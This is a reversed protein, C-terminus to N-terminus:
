LVSVATNPPCSERSDGDKQQTGLSPMASGELLTSFILQRNAHTSRTHQSPFSHFNTRRSQANRVLHRTTSPPPSNVGSKARSRARVQKISILDTICVIETASRCNEAEFSGVLSAIIEGRESGYGALPQYARTATAFFSFRETWHQVQREWNM